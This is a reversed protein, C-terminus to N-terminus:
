SFHVERKFSSGVESRGIGSYSSRHLQNIIKDFARWCLHCTIKKLIPIGVASSKQLDDLSKSYKNANRIVEKLTARTPFNDLSENLFLRSFLTLKSELARVNTFM